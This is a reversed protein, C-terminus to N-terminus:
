RGYRGPAPGSVMLLFVGGGLVIWLWSPISSLGFGPQTSAISELSYATSDITTQFNTQGQGAAAAIAAGTQSQADAVSPLAAVSGAPIAAPPPLPSVPSYVLSPNAIGQAAQYTETSCLSPFSLCWCAPNFVGGAFLGCDLQTGATPNLVDGLGM